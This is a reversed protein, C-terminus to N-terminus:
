EISYSVLEYTGGAAVSKIKGIGKAYYIEERMSVIGAGAVVTKVVKIVDKYTEENVELTLGTEEISTSIKAEVGNMFETETWIEGVPLSGKLQTLTAYRGTAVFADNYIDQIPIGSQTTIQGKLEKEWEYIETHTKVENNSCNFYFIHGNKTQDNTGLLYGKFLKGAVTKNKTFTYEETLNRSGGGGFLDTLEGLVGSGSGTKLYTYSMRSALPIYECVNITKAVPPNVALAEPVAAATSVISRLIGVFEKEYKDFEAEKVFMTLSIGKKQNVIYAVYGKKTSTGLSLPMPIEQIVKQVVVQPLNPVPSAANQATYTKITTYNNLRNKEAAYGAATKTVPKTDIFIFVSPYDLESDDAKSQGSIDSAKMRMYYYVIVDKFHSGGPVGLTSIDQLGGMWNSGPFTINLDGEEINVNQAISINQAKGAFSVLYFFLVPLFYYKFIIKKM